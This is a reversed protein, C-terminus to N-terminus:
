KELIYLIRKLKSHVKIEFSNIITFKYFNLSNLLFHPVFLVIRGKRKLVSYSCTFFCNYIEKLDGFSKSCRGYPPDTIIADYKRKDKCLNRVDKREVIWNKNCYKKLNLKSGEVMIEQIDYGVPFINLLCAEILITGTGCFPDCIIDGEKVKALNIMLRAIEPRLSTPHFFPKKNPLRDEFRKFANKYILKGLLIIDKYVIVIIKTEPNTLNVKPNKLSYWIKDAIKSSINKFKKNNRPIRITDVYFSGKVFKEWDVKISNIDDFKGIFELFYKTLICRDMIKKDINRNTELILLRDLDEIIEYNIEYTKLLTEIEFKALRTNFGSLVLIYKM